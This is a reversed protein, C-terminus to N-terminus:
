LLLDAIVPMHDSPYRGNYIDSLIGHNIVKVSNKIFIFDIGLDLETKSISKGISKLRNIIRYFYIVKNDHFTIGPGYHGKESEYLSDKLPELNQKNRIKGTLVKYAESERTCNFDGTVIVPKDHAIDMIQELLLYASQVKATRGFNDFHTNFLFFEKGTLKDKFEGWTVIRRYMADWGKTGPMNSNQSLWFTGCKKTEFRNKLYFIPNFEGKEAGDDRGAGIWEYEKLFKSLDKLQNVLAEQLGAIDVRHFQLMSAVIDKRNKWQNRIDAITDVRINFTMCRISCIRNLLEKNNMVNKFINELDFSENNNGSNVEKM